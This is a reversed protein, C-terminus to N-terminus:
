IIPDYGGKFFQNCRLIRMLAYYIGRIGHKDISQRAYDSCTPYFRCAKPKFITIKRYLDIFLILLRNLM